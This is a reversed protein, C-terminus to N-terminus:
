PVIQSIVMESAVRFEIDFDDVSISYDDGPFADVVGQFRVQEHSM